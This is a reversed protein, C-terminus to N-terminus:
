PVEHLWGTALYAADSTLSPSSPPMRLSSRHTDRRFLHPARVAAEPVMRTRWATAPVPSRIKFIEETTTLLRVVSNRIAFFAREVKLNLWSVPQYRSQYWIHVSRDSLFGRFCIKIKAGSIV